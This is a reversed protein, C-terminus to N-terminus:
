LTGNRLVWVDDGSIFPLGVPLFGPCLMVGVIASQQYLAGSVGWSSPYRLIDQKVFFTLQEPLKEGIKASASLQL